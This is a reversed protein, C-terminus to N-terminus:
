VPKVADLWLQRFASDPAHRSPYLVVLGEACDNTWSEPDALIARARDRAVIRASEDDPDPLLADDDVRWNDLHESLVYANIWGHDFWTLLCRSCEKPTWPGHRVPGSLTHDIAGEPFEFLFAGEQISWFMEHLFDAFEDTRETV